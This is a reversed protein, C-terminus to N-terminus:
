VVPSEPYCFDREHVRNFKSVPPSVFEDERGILNMWTADFHNSTDLCRCSTFPYTRGHNCEDHVFEYVVVFLVFVDDVCETPEDKRHCIRIAVFIGTCFYPEKNNSYRTRYYTRPIVSSVPDGYDRVRTTTTTANLGPIIPKTETRTEITYGTVGGSTPSRYSTSYNRYSPSSSSYRSVSSPLDPRRTSSNTSSTYSYTSGRETETPVKDYSSRYVTEYELLEEISSKLVDPTLRYGSGKGSDDGSFCIIQTPKFIGTEGNRHNLSSSNEGDGLFVEAESAPFATKVIRYSFLQTAHKERAGNGYSFFNLSRCFMESIVFDSMYFVVIKMQNKKSETEGSLGSKEESKEGSNKIPATKPEGLTFYNYGTPKVESSSYLGPLKYIILPVPAPAPPVSTKPKSRTSSKRKPEHQRQKKPKRQKGSSRYRRPRKHQPRRRPRRHGSHHGLPRSAPADTHRLGM